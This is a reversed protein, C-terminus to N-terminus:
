EGGAWHLFGRKRDAVGVCAAAGELFELLRTRSAEGIVPHQLTEDTYGVTVPWTEPQSSVADITKALAGSLAGLAAGSVVEDDSTNIGVNHSEYLPALFSELYRAEARSRCFVKGSSRDEGEESESDFVCYLYGTLTDDISNMGYLPDANLPQRRDAVSCRFAQIFALTGLNSQVFARALYPMNPPWPLRTGSEM